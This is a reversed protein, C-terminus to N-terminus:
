GAREDSLKARREGLLELALELSVESPDLGKPISANVSGDTVYPGFRGSRLRVSAGSDPDKGLELSSASRGRRKPERFKASAEELTVTFIEEPKELSRTERGRSLYPGFRGNHARIELGSEPDIGVLRPLELLAIADELGIDIVSQSPLLSARRLDKGDGEGLQVYPGYRGTRAIVRLGQYEGLIREKVQTQALIELARDVTLEDPALGEPVSATEEGYQVYPGYRGVRVVIPSGDPGDGIPITNVARADIEALKEEVQGRLGARGDGFYFKRLYPVAEITGTAIKDLQDELNATFGYDVLDSFYQEMLQVVAFATFSPILAQGKKWAYGRDIITSIISAYTSPRGIGREELAKILAAESYRSPATTIHAEPAVSEPILEDGVALVPLLQETEEELQYALLFGPYKISRGRAEFESVTGAAFTEGGVELEAGNVAELSVVVSTGQADPMQSALTRQWILRYLRLEDASLTSALEEPDRWYEGAPRIAEHAEQANKVKSRYHRASSVVADPFRRSIVRKAEELAEAALSVSDTRMYTIFGQEYLRQAISMTRSPSFRLKSSAEQQLTSTMFPPSPQRKFPKEEVSVVRFSKGALGEALKSAAALDLAIVRDKEASSKLSGSASFDRGQAIRRSAHRVMKASFEADKSRFFATIDSYSAGVFKMREREREVLLRCAVSQVRGASLRPAVKKWLVPSVEYGYLRDLIRRAEQADVLRKDISRTASLAERIARDTIEHFVMREVPIRPNLVELIHWAISEGERDEDTALYLKSADKLLSKLKKVQEKKEAPIIYLPRFDHDTDVGLRAWPESKVSAPIEKASRPLDRIHGVSPEIVYDSGLFRSITRAKTPSEVIVLPKAM